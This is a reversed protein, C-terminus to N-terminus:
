ACTPLVDWFAWPEDNVKGAPVHGPWRVLMAQRLGGEYMTRKCGRLGRAQEFFKGMGSEPAFSSGNYGALLVLTQEDLKLEKLLTMLRGVDSDLRTVMAAYTKQQPTWDTAAYQGLDDIEYKAHPLTVAYYLFFPRDKNKRM